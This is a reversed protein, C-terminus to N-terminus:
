PFPQEVLFLNGRVVNMSIDSELILYIIFPHQLVPIYRWIAHLAEIPDKLGPAEPLLQTQSKEGRSIEYLYLRASVLLILGQAHRPEKLRKRQILLYWMYCPDFRFLVNDSDQNYESKCFCDQMSPPCEVAISGMSSM